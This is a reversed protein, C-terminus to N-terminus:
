VLSVFFSETFNASLKKEPPSSKLLGGIQKDDYVGLFLLHDSNAAISPKLQTSLALGLFHFDISKM